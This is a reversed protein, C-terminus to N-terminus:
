ERNIKTSEPLHDLLKARIFSGAAGYCRMFSELRSTSISPITDDIPVLRGPPQNFDVTCSFCRSNREVYLPKTYGLTWRPKSDILISRGDSFRSQSKCRICWSKVPVDEPSEERLCQKWLYESRPKVSMLGQIGDRVWPTAEDRPILSRQKGRCAISDCKRLRRALHTGPRQCHWRPEPDQFTESFNACKTPMARFDFRSHWLHQHAGQIVALLESQRLMWFLIVDQLREPKGELRQHPYCIRRYSCFVGFIDRISDITHNPFLIQKQGKFWEIVSDPFDLPNRWGDAILEIRCKDIAKPLIRRLEDNSHPKHNFYIGWSVSLQSSESNDGSM